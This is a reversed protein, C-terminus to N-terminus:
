KNKLSLGHLALNGQGSSLSRVKATKSDLQWRHENQSRRTWVTWKKRQVDVLFQNKRVPFRVNTEPGTVKDM